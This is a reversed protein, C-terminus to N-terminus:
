KTDDTTQPNSKNSTSPHVAKTYFDLMTTIGVPLPLPGANINVKLRSTNQMKSQETKSKKRQQNTSSNNSIRGKLKTTEGPSGFHESIVQSSNAQETTQSTVEMDFEFSVQDVALSNIPIITILPLQFTTQVRKMGNGTQDDPDIFSRTMSMEIMVPDYTNGNKSFCFDILFKTQEKLMMSNATAAAVLPASIISEIDLANNSRPSFTRLRQPM